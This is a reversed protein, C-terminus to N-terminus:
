KKSDAREEGDGDVGTMESYRRCRVKGDGPQQARKRGCQREPSHKFIKSCLCQCVGSEVLVSHGSSQQDEGAGFM